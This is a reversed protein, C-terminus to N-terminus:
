TINVHLYSGLLNFAPIWKKALKDGQSARKKMGSYLRRSISFYINQANWLDLSLSLPKLAELTTDINELLHLDEPDQNLRGVVINVWSSVVYGMTRSDISINWRRAEDILRKIKEADVELGEFMKRLDLDVIYETAASFRRPLQINLNHFFNMIPYYDEYIHRYTNEINEYTLQLIQDLIKRQEDKFLHWLSYTNGDFHRDIIRIVEPIDGKEFADKIEGQMESFEEEGTFDKVGANINHDGLHLVAFSIVKEDWTIDSIITAKGVAIKQKGGEMVNYVASRSTYCFIKIDEPYKEFISSISYHAGVRLLDSKKSAVFMEYPKEASKFVNSPVEALRKVYEDHLSDIGLEEACQIARAAYQLIQVAEIGSIDDFFWGCSTYMLMANRQMELLKLARIKEKESLGRLANKLLFQEVEPRLRNLIVEIYGNRVEWPDRFYLSSEDEYFLILRNRLWDMSERLPRRWNQKWGPHVGTNCGCDDRWREVGHICSWSSNEFIEVEFSPPHKELYEGYNTISAMHGSEIYHLCYSLAMDGYRHHHGFTEGDSAIHVLQDRNKDNDFSALLRKAFAEGNNLLGGFSVDQSIPGDYFFLNIKKGSPLMCIYPRSIDIREGSVDVWKGTKGTKKMAKAQRPSLVTFSIGADAMIDLTEMDVATEPLWMGEPFRRFRRQFDKIGWVIQTCKDRRNALPMIIHNYAQALASGHGSFKEISIEDAELISRYVDPKHREMWSMLTPGFDFSIKSYINVIDIIKEKSDLIRSAANPAYCEATIRENWDHYPYADDQLEVEEIWPNERPPQYFHGHICIYRKM